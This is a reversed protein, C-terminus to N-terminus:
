HYPSWRSRCEKGVRREESRPEYDALGAELDATKEEMQTVLEARREDDSVAYELTRVRYAAHARQVEALANLPRLNEAYITAQHDRLASIHQVAMTNTGLVVVALLGVAAGIKAAVSRRAFWGGPRRTTSRSM